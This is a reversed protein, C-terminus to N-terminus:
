RSKVYDLFMGKLILLQPRSELDSEFLLINNQLSLQRSFQGFANMITTLTEKVQLDSRISGDEIGSQVITAWHHSIRRHLAVFSEMDEVPELSHAAYSDFDIMYKASARDHEQILFDFLRELKDLCSGPLGATTMFADHIPQLLKTAVAVILKDKKPFYRFLTAIGINAADAIHQMSTKEIGRSIFEREAAEVITLQRQQKGDLREKEYREKADM